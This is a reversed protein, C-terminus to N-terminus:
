VVADLEYLRKYINKKDIPTTIWDIRDSHETYFKKSLTQSYFLEYFNLWDINRECFEETLVYWVSIHDWLETQEPKMHQELFDLSWTKIYFITELPVMLRPFNIETFRTPLKEVVRKQLRVPLLQFLHIGLRSM